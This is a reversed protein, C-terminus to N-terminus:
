KLCLFGAFGGIFALLCSIAHAVAVITPEQVGGLEFHHHIPAMRFLRKRVGLKKETWKKYSVQLVVSLTEVFFVGSCMLLPFFMGTSAAMAALAGGLALSGTDGMFVAAKHHNHVLFGICAGAMSVGFISIAPYIQLLALSMGLFAAAATGAALGDLGDTLNVGNSMSAFCFSAFPVYCTGFDLHPLPKPFLVLTRVRFPTPLGALACWYGFCLGTIVQLLLKCWGPLGYNHKHVFGLIDDLLGIAGFALTAAVLVIVQASSAGASTAAVIVGVPIFYLGGMTPTGVKSFHTSPGEIRFIQYARLRRLFPICVCGLITTVVASVLFPFTYSAVVIEHLRLKPLHPSKLLKASDMFFLGGVLFLFLTSCITEKVLQLSLLPQSFVNSDRELRELFNDSSSKPSDLFSESKKPAKGDENDKFRKISNCRIRRFDSRGGKKGEDLAKLKACEQLLFAYSKQSMRLGGKHLLEIYEVAEKVQGEECMARMDNDANQAFKREIEIARAHAEKEEPSLRRALTHSSARLRSASSATIPVLSRAHSAFLGRCCCINADNSAVSISCFLSSNLIQTCNMVSDDSENCASIAGSLSRSISSHM